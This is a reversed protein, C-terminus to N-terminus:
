ISPAWARTVPGICVPMKGRSLQIVLQGVLQVQARFGFVGPCRCFWGLRQGQEGGRRSPENGAEAVEEEALPALREPIEKGDGRRAITPRFSRPSTKAEPPSAKPM